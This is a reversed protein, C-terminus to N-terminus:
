TNENYPIIIHFGVSLQLLINSLILIKINIEAACIWQCVMVLLLMFSVFIDSRIVLPRNSLCNLRSIDAQPKLLRLLM